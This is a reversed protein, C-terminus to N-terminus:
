LAQPQPQGQLGGGQQAQAQQLAAMIQARKAEQEEQSPALMAGLGKLAALTGFLGGAGYLFGRSLKGLGALKGLIGGNNIANQRKLILDIEKNNGKGAGTIQHLTDLHVLAHKDDAGFELRGNNSHKGDGDLEKLRKILNQDTIKVAGNEIDLKHEGDGLVTKLRGEGSALGQKAQEQLLTRRETLVAQQAENLTVGQPAKGTRLAERAQDKTLETGKFAEHKLVNTVHGTGKRAIDVKAVM